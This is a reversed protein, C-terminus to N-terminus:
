GTIRDEVLGPHKATAPASQRIPTSPPVPINVRHSQRYPQTISRALGTKVISEARHLVYYDLSTDLSGSGAPALM